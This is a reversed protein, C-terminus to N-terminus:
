VLLYTAIFSTLRTYITTSHQILQAEPAIIILPSNAIVSSFLRIPIPLLVVLVEDLPALDEQRHLAEGAPLLFEPLHVSPLVPSWEAIRV